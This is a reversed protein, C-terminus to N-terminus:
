NCNTNMNELGPELEINIYGNFDDFSFKSFYINLYRAIRLIEFM